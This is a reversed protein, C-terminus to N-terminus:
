PKAVHVWSSLSSSPARSNRSVSAQGRTATQPGGTVQGKMTDHEDRDKDPYRYVRTCTTDDTGLVAPM